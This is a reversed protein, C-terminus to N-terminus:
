RLLLRECGMKEVRCHQWEKDTCEKKVDEVAILEFIRNQLKANIGILDQYCDECYAPKGTACHLCKESKLLDLQEELNNCEMCITEYDSVSSLHKNLEKLREIEKELEKIREQDMKAFSITGKMASEKIKLEELVIDIALAMKNDYKYGKLYAKAEELNM